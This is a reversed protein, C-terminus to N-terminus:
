HRLSGRLLGALAQSDVPKALHRNFGRQEAMTGDDMGSLALLFMEAGHASNRIRGAVEYGDMAPLDVDIIGIDPRVADVLELARAGDPAAYVQHGTQELVTRLQERTEPNNEILLIRRSAARRDTPPAPAADHSPPIRNLRVTFTSGHGEGDSAAAVTGGHLEVLQRVLTLGIGIGGDARSLTRDAQTYLDFIHPLLRTAIGLGSDAVSLVVEAADARLTIRICGGAPTYKMANTVLNSLVQLLRVADAEVWLPENGVDVQWDYRTDATFPSLDRLVAAGLDLPRRDLRLKGSAMREVDLLDSVIRSVHSIQRKIVEHARPAVGAPAQALLGAAVGIAQLPSRLEHALVALFEDKTRSDRQARDRASEAAALDGLDTVIVNLSEGTPSSTTSVALSVEFEEGATDVLRGRGRGQGDKLLTAFVSAGTAPIFRGIRSGTFTELPVGVMAAFRANAYTINGSRTLVVAGEPMQEVLIRYPEDASHLTYVQHEGDREVVLADIEGHRIARLTEEADALRGRLREAPGFRRVQREHM